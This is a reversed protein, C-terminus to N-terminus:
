PSKHWVHLLSASFLTQEQLNVSRFWTEITYDNELGPFQRNTNIDGDFWFLYGDGDFKVCRGLNPTLKVKANHIPNGSPTEVHGTIMGNPNLFGVNDNTQSEGMDNVVTVGYTYYEGPFVNFDLYQTQIMPLTTLIYGNRFLTVEDSTVPPGSFDGEIHWDILVMEQYDGDSSNVLPAKPETLYDAFFGSAVRYTYTEATNATILGQGIVAQLQYGNSAQSNEMVNAMMTSVREISYIPECLAQATMFNPVFLLLLMAVRFQSLFYFRRALCPVQEIRLDPKHSLLLIQKNIKIM